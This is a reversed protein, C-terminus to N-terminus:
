TYSCSSGCLWSWSNGRIFSDTLLKQLCTKWGEGYDWQSACPQRPQLLLWWKARPLCIYSSYIRMHFQLIRMNCLSSFLSEATSQTKKGISSKQIATLWSTCATTHLFSGECDRSFSKMLTNRVRVRELCYESRITLLIYISCLLLTHVPLSLSSTFLLFHLVNELTYNGGQQLPPLPFILEFLPLHLKFPHWPKGRESKCGCFCAAMWLQCWCSINSCEEWRNSNKGPHPPIMWESLLIILDGWQGWFKGMFVLHVHVM